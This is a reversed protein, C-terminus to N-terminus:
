DDVDLRRCSLAHGYRCNMKVDYVPGSAPSVLDMRQQFCDFGSQGAAFMARQDGAIQVRV